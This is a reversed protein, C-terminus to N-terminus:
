KRLTVLKRELKVNISLSLESIDTGVSLNRNEQLLWFGIGSRHRFLIGHCAALRADDHRFL